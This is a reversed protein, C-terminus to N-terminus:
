IDFLIGPVSSLVHNNNFPVFSPHSAPILSDVGHGTHGFENGAGTSVSVVPSVAEYHSGAHRGPPPCTDTVHRLTDQGSSPSQYLGGPYPKLAKRRFGRPRRRFSGEEFM